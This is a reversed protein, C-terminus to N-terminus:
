FFNWPNHATLFDELDFETPTEAKKKVLHDVADVLGDVSLPFMPFLKKVLQISFSHRAYSPPLPNLWVARPFRQRLRQLWQLGSSATRGSAHIAGYRSVLESPAMYADGVVILFTEKPRDRILDRTPVRLNRQYSEYVHSYPCNHFFFAEFKKWHNLGSAASFLQEVLRSFPDMSGGTDMMLLVRAQNERPAKLVLELEGANKCTAEISEDVDLEPEGGHRSLRRLKKLAVTIGRTDLVRDKRYERFRREGAIQVASRGGGPGGIRIGAPNKGGYGFPSTGGTGIWKSGGDHREKQEKLREEFLERLKELPLAELAELEAQSLEPPPLPNELWSLLEESLKEPMKGGQFVALFVQDWLDFQAEDHILIARAVHYFDSLNPHIQGEALARMLVMWESLTVKLGARRLGFFLRGFLFPKAKPKSRFWIESAPM